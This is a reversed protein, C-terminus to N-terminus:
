PFPYLFILSFNSFKSFSSIKDLENISGVSIVNDYAAPFNILMKGDNGSAADIFIGASAANNIARNIHSPCNATTYNGEGLSMTIVKINFATANNVCWDVGAAVAGYTGGNTANFVKLAVLKAGPAIGRLQADASAAIGAVNTGHGDLDLPDTNNPLNCYPGNCFNYGGIVKSCKGTLFQTKTCGGLKSQTYDIGTDIVCITSGGGTYGITNEVKDAKILPRSEALSLYVEKDLYVAVVNEDVVIKEFGLKSIKGAFGNTVTYVYKIKFEDEHLNSLVNRQIKTIEERKKNLDNQYAPSTFENDRLWVIVNVFYKNVLKKKEGNLEFLVPKIKEINEGVLNKTIIKLWDIDWTNIM